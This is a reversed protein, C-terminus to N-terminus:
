PAGYEEGLAVLEPEREIRLTKFVMTLTTYCGITWLLDMVQQESLEARLADWVDDTLESTAVLQDAATAVARELANWHPSSPGEKLADFDDRGMGVPLSVRLHSSWMYTAGRIWAVRHIAIQRLRPPLSTNNLIHRNFTLFAKALAPYHAFTQLVHNALAADGPTGGGSLSSFVAERDTDSLTAPDLRALRATRDSM